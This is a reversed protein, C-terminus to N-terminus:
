NVKILEVNFVLADNPKIVGPRPNVGYALDPHIYFEYVAGENMLQLGETWGKIVQTVGFTAPEGREVSSDFPTGDILTGSYHVTVKDAPTPKAGIGKTLVKYQLGSVTTMVGEKKENTALFDEATKLNGSYKLSKKTEQYGQVRKQAETIDIAANGAYVDSIGRAIDDYSLGDFDQAKLNEGISVGIAYSVEKETGNNASSSSEDQAMTSCGMISLSILAPLLYNKM